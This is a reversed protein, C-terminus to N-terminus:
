RVISGTHGLPQDEESRRHRKRFKEVFILGFWLPSIAVLGTGGREALRIALALGNYTLPTVERYRGHEGVFYHGGEIKGLGPSGGVLM